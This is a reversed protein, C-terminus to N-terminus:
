GEDVVAVAAGAFNGGAKVGGDAEAVAGEVGPEQHLHRQSASDELDLAAGDGIRAGGPDEVVLVHGDFGEM